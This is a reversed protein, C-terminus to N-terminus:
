VAVRLAEILVAVDDFAVRESAFQQYTEHGKGAVLVVDNEGAMSIATQIAARRDAIYTFADGTFGAIIQQSIQEPLETRPNDDTVIVYDSYREAIAAMLPRKANDRDGGCGFVTIKKTLKYRELAQLAKALADPTHAYDVVAMTSKIGSVLEMRGRVGSLKIITGALELFLSETNKEYSKLCEFVATFSALVNLLNFDGVLQTKIETSYKEYHLMASINGGHYQIDSLYVDATADILAYSLLRTDQMLGSALREYYDDDKNIIALALGPLFFLKQKALFYADMDGHYDLHDHSLNTFIAVDMNIADCRSQDLAHSSVELAISSEGVGYIGQLSKQLSVADPTTNLVRGVSTASDSSVGLTGITACRRGHYQMLQQVFSVVSTKGNTGTVAFVHLNQSPHQYFKAAIASMNKRLNVDVIYSIGRMMKPLKSEVEVAVAVAGAEIAASIYCHGDGSFGKLACYLSGKVVKRSDICIASVAIDNGHIVHSSLESLMMTHTDRM